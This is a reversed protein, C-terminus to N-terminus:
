KRQAKQERWQRVLPDNKWKADYEGTKLCLDKSSDPLKDWIHQPIGHSQVVEKGDKGWHLYHWFVFLPHDDGGHVFDIWGEAIREGKANVVWVDSWNELSGDLYETQHGEGCPDSWDIAIDEGEDKFYYRFDELLQREVEARLQKGLRKVPIVYSM